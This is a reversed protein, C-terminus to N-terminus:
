IILRVEGLEQVPFEFKESPAGIFMFNTPIKWRISLEKIKEPCFRGPEEIFEINIDPYARDLVEIDTKLGAPVKMDDELVSVIKLRRTSENKTIYLMVKNL